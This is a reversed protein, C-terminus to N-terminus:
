VLRHPRLLQAHTEYTIFTLYSFGVSAAAAAAAAATVVDETKDGGRASDESMKRRSIAGSRQEDALEKMHEWMLQKFEDESRAGLLRLRLDM